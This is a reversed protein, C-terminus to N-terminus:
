CETLRENLFRDKQRSTWEKFERFRRSARAKNSFTEAYVSDVVAQSRAESTDPSGKVSATKKGAMKPGSKGGASGTFFSGDTCKMIYVYYKAM